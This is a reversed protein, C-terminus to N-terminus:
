SLSCVPFLRTLDGFAKGTEKDIIGIIAPFYEHMKEQLADEITIDEEENDNAKTEQTKTSQLNKRTQNMHGKSTAISKELFLKVM